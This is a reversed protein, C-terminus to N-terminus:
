SHMKRGTKEIWCAELIKGKISLQPIQRKSDRSAEEWQTGELPIPTGTQQAVNGKQLRKEGVHTKLASLEWPKRGRSTGSGDKKRASNGGTLAGELNWNAPGEGTTRFKRRFGPIIKKGNKSSGKEKCSKDDGM